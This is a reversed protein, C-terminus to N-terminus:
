DGNAEKHAKAADKEKKFQGLFVKKKNITMTAVWYIYQRNRGQHVRRHVGLYNSSFTKERHGRLNQNNQKQTVVRLNSRRNDLRDGNIHDIQRGDLYKGMIANHLFAIYKRGEFHPRCMVYGYQDCHWRYQTLHEDCKDITAIKGKGLLLKIM